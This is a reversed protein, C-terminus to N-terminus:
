RWSQSRDSKRGQPGASGPQSILHMCHVFGSGGQRLLIKDAQWSVSAQGIGDHAGTDAVPPVHQAADPGVFDSDDAQGEKNDDDQHGNKGRYERRVAILGRVQEMGILWGTGLVPEAGVGSAPIQPGPDPHTRPDGQNDTQAAGNHGLDDADKQASQGAKEAAPHIHEDHTDNIHTHTDRRQHIHGQNHEPQIRAGHGNDDGNGNGAPHVRGADDPAPHELKFVPLKDQSGAGQPGRGDANNEAVDQGVDQALLHYVDGGGDRRGNKQLCVQAKDAQADLGGHRGPALQALHARLKVAEVGILQKDGAHKDTHGNQCKIQEAVTQAIRQVGM